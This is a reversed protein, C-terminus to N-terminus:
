SRGAASLLAMQRASFISVPPLVLNANAPLNTLVNTPAFTGMETGVSSEAGGFLVEFYPTFKSHDHYASERTNSLCCLSSYTRV